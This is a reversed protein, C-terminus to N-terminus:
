SNSSYNRSSITLVSSSTDDYGERTNQRCNALTCLASAINTTYLQQYLPIGRAAILGPFSTLISSFAQFLRQLKPSTINFLTLWSPVITIM